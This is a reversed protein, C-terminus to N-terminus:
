LALRNQAAVLSHIELRCCAPIANTRVSPRNRCRRRGTYNLIILHIRQEPFGPFSAPEHLGGLASAGPQVSKRAAKLNSLIDTDAVDSEGEFVALSISLAPTRGIGGERARKTALMKEKETIHTKKSIAPTKACAIRAITSGSM